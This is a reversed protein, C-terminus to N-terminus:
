HASSRSSFSALDDGQPEAFWLLLVGALAFPFVFWMEFSSNFWAMLGLPGLVSYIGFWSMPNKKPRWQRLALSILAVAGNVVWVGLVDWAMERNDMARWAGIVLPTGIGWWLLYFWYKRIM